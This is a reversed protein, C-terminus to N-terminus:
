EFLAGAPAKTTEDPKTIKPIKTKESLAPFGAKVM